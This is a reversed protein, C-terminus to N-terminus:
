LRRASEFRPEGPVGVRLSLGEFMRRRRNGFQVREESVDELPHLLVFASCARHAM